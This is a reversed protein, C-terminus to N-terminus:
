AAIANETAADVNSVVLDFHVPTWHRQYDRSLSKDPVPNSGNEKQLLFIRVSAGTMEAVTNEFLRRRLRLDTARRYFAIAQDLDSVDINILTEM